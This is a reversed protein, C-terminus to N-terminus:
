ACVFVSLEAPAGGPHLRAQKAKAEAAAAAARAMAEAAEAEQANRLM